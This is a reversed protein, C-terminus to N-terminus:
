VTSAKKGPLSFIGAAEDIVVEYSEGVYAKLRARTHKELWKDGRDDFDWVEFEVKKGGDTRMGRGVRQIAAIASKGGSAIVVSALSPIDVGEQFIVSCVLADIDGRVLRKVAALRKENPDSGWTFEARVGAASLLKLLARGHEIEKVFVLCPKASRAVAAAVARNRPASEVVCESYVEQWTEGGTRQTVPVFRIKPKALWGAEILVEPRIRHIVPGLAAITLVSRQDGRALPTGSVGIRYYAGTARMIVKWFSDAPLTHAEDVLLAQANTLLDIAEESDLRAYLTQFTACTFRAPEWLGEGIRGAKEGTRQEFRDATQQMLTGRHVLFLWRCPVALAAGTAIETKGAATPLWVIGRVRDVIRQVSERQYDRLWSLDAALNVAPRPARKDAVLVQIGSEAAAKKVMPLFGAPFARTVLSFMKVRGDGGGRRFYAQSDEFALFELLWNEEEDTAHTVKCWVNNQDVFM